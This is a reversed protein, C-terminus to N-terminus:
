LKLDRHTFGQKHIYKVGNLLEKFYYLAIDEPFGGGLKIYSYLEGNSAIEYVLTPLTSLTNSGEKILAKQNFEIMRLVNSHRLKRMIKKENKSLKSFERHSTDESPIKLAYSQDSDRKKAKYVSCYGGTGLLSICEYDPKMDIAIRSNPQEM